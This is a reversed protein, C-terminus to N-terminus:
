AERRANQRANEINRLLGGRRAREMPTSGFHRRFSERSRRELDDLSPAALDPRPEFPGPLPPPAPRAPFPCATLCDDCGFVRHDAARAWREPVAGRHEITWYSLCRNADLTRADDLADTPCAEVCATCTGCRDIVPPDAPFAVNVLVEALMLWPGHEEDLLMTNKGIWGVGARAALTRELLPASDVCIRASLGPLLTRCGALAQEAAARMTRHYDEGRAYGALPGKADTGPYAAALCVVSAADPMLSRPDARDGTRREMWTMSAHRGSAVWSSAHDEVPEATTFRVRVFGQDRFLRRVAERTEDDTRGPEM